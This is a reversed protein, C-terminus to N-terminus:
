HEGKQKSQIAAQLRGTQVALNRILEEGAPQSYSGALLRNLSTDIEGTLAVLARVGAQWTQEGSNESTQSPPTDSPPFLPRLNTRIQTVLRESASLHRQRLNHLLARDADPLRAEIVPPFKEALVQLAHARSVLSSSAELVQDTVEQLHIAGGLRGEFQQRLASPISTTSTEATQSRPVVPGSRVPAFDLSVRPLSQLAQKLQQQRQPSLGGARVLVHRHQSDESLDIPEGVDAGIENLAALVRLTDEPTAFTEAPGERAIPTKQQLPQPSQAPAEASEVTGEGDFAFSGNIPHLDEGRLTLSVSRLSGTPSDTKVRYSQKEGQMQVVSVSDRKDRLSNRWTRFSRASLPERWSYHAATFLEQLHAMGPDNGAPVDKTLVAPRIITRGHLQMTILRGQPESTSASRDLLESAQRSSQTSPELLFMVLCLTAAFAVVPWWRFASRKEQQRAVLASLRLWPQPASPLLPARISDRYELYAVTAAQMDNLRRRCDACFDLHIAEHPSLEGDQFRVLQLDSLHSLRNSDM